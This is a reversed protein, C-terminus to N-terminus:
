LLHGEDIEEEGGQVPVCLFNKALIHIKAHAANGFMLHSLPVTGLKSGCGFGEGELQAVVPIVVPIVYACM